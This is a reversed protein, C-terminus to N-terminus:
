PSVTGERRLEVVKASPGSQRREEIFAELDAPRVRRLSEPIQVSPLAGDRILRWATTRSCNLITAVQALNYLADSM